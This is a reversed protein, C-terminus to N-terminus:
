MEKVTNEVSTMFSKLAKGPQKERTIIGIKRYQAPSLPLVTVDDSISKMILGSMVTIGLGHAVMSVITADDMNSYRINSPRTYGSTEFIPLLDADFGGSPMLFTTEAFAGLPFAKGDSQYSKPLIVLLEDNELFTWNLDAMYEPQWSVIACDLEGDRVSDYAAKLDDESMVHVDADPNERKYHSVIAPIWSRAASAIAGIYFINQATAKRLAVSQDFDTSAAVLKEIKPLLDRGAPSLCVGKKNRILLQLGLESELSNMMNTLGPQTYGLADAASTLSGSNIVQMLAALKKTDM